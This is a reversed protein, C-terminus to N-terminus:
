LAAAEAEFNRAAVEAYAAEHIGAPLTGPAHDFEPISIFGEQQSPRV